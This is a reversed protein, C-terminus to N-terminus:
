AGLMSFAPSFKNETWGHNQKTVDTSIDPTPRTSTLKRASSSTTWTGSCETATATVCNLSETFNKLSTLTTGGSQGVFRPVGNMVTFSLKQRECVPIVHENLLKQALFELRRKYEADLHDVLKQLKMPIEM